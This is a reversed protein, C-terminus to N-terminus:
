VVLTLYETGPVRLLPSGLVDRPLEINDAIMVALTMDSSPHLFHDIITM